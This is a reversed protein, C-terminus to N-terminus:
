YTVRDIEPDQPSLHTYIMTTKISAHGLWQSVKFISVGAMVLHSAFTHRLTKITCDPLDAVERIRNFNHELKSTYQKGKANLFCWGQKKRYPLLIDELQRRLPVTREQYSKLTMGKEPKNRIYVLNRRWDIDEWELFVLEKQRLGTHVATAVLPYLHTGDAASLLRTVEESELFRVLARPTKVDPIGNCPNESVYRHKRAWNFMARLARFDGAACWVSFANTRKAIYEEIERTSINSLRKSGIERLFAHCKPRYFSDYSKKERMAKVHDLYERVLRSLSPNAAHKVQGGKLLELEVIRLQREAKAKDKGAWLRFRKGDKTFHVYFSGSDKRQYLRVPPDQRTM